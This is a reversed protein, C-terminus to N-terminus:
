GRFERMNELYVAVGMEDNTGTVFGAAQRVRPAANGMAVSTGAAAFMGLDNENDGFALIEERGIGMSRALATLAAGKDVGAATVEVNGGISSAVGLTRDSELRGRVRAADASHRFYLNVKEAEALLGRERSLHRIFNHNETFYRVFNGDFLAGEIGDLSRIDAYAQGHVFVEAYVELGDTLGLIEEAKGPPLGRRLWEAEGQYDWVLAGNETVAYRLGALGTLEGPFVGLCRGTAPAVLIGLDLARQLASITRGGIRNKSDMLTGDLDVAILKIM